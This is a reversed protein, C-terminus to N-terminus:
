SMFHRSMVHCSNVHDHCHRSRVQCSMDHCLLKHCAQCHMVRCSMVLSSLCLMVHCSVIDLIVFSSCPTGFWVMAGPKTGSLATLFLCLGQARLANHDERCPIDFALGRLGHNLGARTLHGFGSFFEVFDLISHHLSRHRLVRLALVHSHTQLDGLQAGHFRWQCCPGCPDSVEGHFQVADHVLFCDIKKRLERQDGRVTEAFKAWTKKWPHEVGVDTAENFLATVREAGM